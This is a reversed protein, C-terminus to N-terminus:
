TEQARGSRRAVIVGIQLLALAALAFQLLMEQERLLAAVGLAIAVTWIARAWLRSGMGLSRCSRGAFLASVALLGWEAAENDTLFALGAPLLPVLAAGVVCHLFCLVSLSTGVM